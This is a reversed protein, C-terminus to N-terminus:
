VHARGIKVFINLRADAPVEHALAAVFMWVLAFSAIAIAIGTQQARFVRASPRIHARSAPSFAMRLRRVGRALRGTWAVEGTSRGVVQDLRGAVKERLRSFPFGERM